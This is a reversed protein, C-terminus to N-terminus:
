RRSRVYTKARCSSKGCPVGAAPSAVTAGSFHNRFDAMSGCARGLRSDRDRRATSAGEFARGNQMSEGVSLPHMRYLLYRGM